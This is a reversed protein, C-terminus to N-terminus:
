HQGVEERRLQDIFVDDDRRELGKCAVLSPKRKSASGERLALPSTLGATCGIRRSRTKGGFWWCALLVSIASMLWTLSCISTTPASPTCTPVTSLTTPVRM